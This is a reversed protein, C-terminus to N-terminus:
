PVWLWCRVRRPRGEVAVAGVTAGGDGEEAGAAAPPLELREPPPEPVPLERASPAPEGGGGPDWAPLHLHILTWAEAPEGERGTTLLRAPAGPELTVEVRSLGTFVGEGVAKLWAEKRTWALLFARRREGAPLSRWCRREEESLARRALREPDLAPGGTEVDVGVRGPRHVAVVAVEGSHSLNFHVGEASGVGAATALEPKGLRNTRFELGQPDAGLHAALIRRLGSRSALFRQRLAATRLRGLREIEDGALLAEAGARRAEPLALPFRWLHLEGSGLGLDAPLGAPCDPTAGSRSPSLDKRDMADPAPPGPAPGRPCGTLM